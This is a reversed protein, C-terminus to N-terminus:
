RNRKKQPPTKRIGNFDFNRDVKWHNGKYEYRIWTDDQYSIGIVPWETKIGNILIYSVFHKFSVGDQWEFMELLLQYIRKNIDITIKKGKNKQKMKTGILEIM